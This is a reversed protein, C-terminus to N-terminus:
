NIKSEFILKSIALPSCLLHDIETIDHQLNQKNNTSKNDEESQSTSSMKEEISQLDQLQKILSACRYVMASRSSVKLKAYIRRLHASVTLDSIQLQKAVEKNSYGLAILVTIQLERGTLLNIIIDNVDTIAQTNIILYLHENLEFHGVVSFSINDIIINSALQQNSSGISEVSVILFCSSKIFFKSIISYNTNSNTVSLNSIANFDVQM